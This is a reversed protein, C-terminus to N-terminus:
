RAYAGLVECRLRVVVLLLFLLVHSLDCDKKAADGGLVVDGALAGVVHDIRKVAAKVQHENADGLGALPEVVGAVRCVHGAVPLGVVSLLDDKDGTTASLTAEINHAVAREHAQVDIHGQRDHVALAALVASKLARKLHAAHGVHAAAHKGAGHAHVLVCRM